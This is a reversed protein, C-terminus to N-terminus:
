PLLIASTIRDINAELDVSMSTQLRLCDCAVVHLTGPVQERGGVVWGGYNFGLEVKRAQLNPDVPRGRVARYPLPGSLASRAQFPTPKARM